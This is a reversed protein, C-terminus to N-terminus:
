ADHPPTDSESVGRFIGKRTGGRESPGADQTSEKPTGAMPAPQETAGETPPQELVPQEAVKAPTTTGKLPRGFPGRKPKAVQAADPSPEGPGEAPALDLVRLKGRKANKLPDLEPRFQGPNPIGRLVRISEQLVSWARALAALDVPKIGKEQAQAYIFRQLTRAEKLQTTPRDRGARPDGVYFLHPKSSPPVTSVQFDDTADVQAAATM